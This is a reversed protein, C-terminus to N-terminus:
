KAKTILEWPNRFCGYGNELSVKWKLTCKMWLVRFTEFILSCLIGCFNRSSKETSNEGRTLGLYLM